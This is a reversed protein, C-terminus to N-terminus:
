QLRVATAPRAKLFAETANFPGFRRVDVDSLDEQPAGRDIWQAVARAMSASHTVGSSNFGCLLFFGKLGPAEGILPNGDPSFSEPGNLFEAIPAARNPRISPLVDVLALKRVLEPARATIM